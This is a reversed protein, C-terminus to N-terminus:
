ANGATIRAAARIGSRVAGEVSPALLYDGALALNAPLWTDDFRVLRQVHGPAFITYADDFRFVQAHTVRRAIGPVAADVDRLLTAAVDDDAQALLAPTARPAPLVVVADGGAPVLAELKRRQICLASLRAGHESTRPFSLGFYDGPFERDIRCALTLTSREQVSLLFGGLGGAAADALGLLAAARNAPVALVAADYAEGDVHVVNTEARVSAVEAGRRLEVGREELASAIADALAGFGGVAGYVSVDMGVLALSHYVGASTEEPEAGYYSSLLPYALLEVFEDGLQRRGWAGISEGDFAAGGSGPLDSVDLRRAESKLFPLYRGALKLKLTTPLAGSAIMSTVSGYTIGHPRGRRWLADHGPSRRLLSGAGARAALDFLSTHPSGVLQVGVDVRAGDLTETRLLGGARASREHVVVDAGGEALRWAAALGAAGAGVVAVRM